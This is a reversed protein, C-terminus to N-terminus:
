FKLFSVESLEGKESFYQSLDDESASYPLNRIFLRRSEEILTIDPDGIPEELSPEKVDDGIDQPAESDSSRNMDIREPNDEVQEARTTPQAEIEFQKDLEDSDVLGLLRSTRSRLWEDDTANHETFTELAKIQAPASETKSLAQPRSDLLADEPLKEKKVMKKSEKPVEPIPEYDDESPVEPATVTFNEINQNSKLADATADENAWTKSKSPPQMARLYEQLTEDKKGANEPERKRKM